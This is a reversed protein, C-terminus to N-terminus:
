SPPYGFAEVWRDLRPLVPALEAAYARWRGVGRRNIGARVQRASPTRVDRRAATAAFDAMTAHPALGLFTTV